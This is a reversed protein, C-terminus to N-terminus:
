TLLQTVDGASDRAEERSLRRILVRRYDLQLLQLHPLPPNLAPTAPNLCPPLHGSNLSPFAPTWSKPCPLISSAHITIWSASARYKNRLEEAM